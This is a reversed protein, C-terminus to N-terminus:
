YNVFPKWGTNNIANKDASHKLLLEVLAQNNDTVASHLPTNGGLTESTNVNAGATPCVVPDLM